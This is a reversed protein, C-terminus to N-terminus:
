KAVVPWKIFGHVGLLPLLPLLMSVFVFSCSIFTCSTFNIFSISSFCHFHQEKSKCGCDDKNKPLNNIDHM